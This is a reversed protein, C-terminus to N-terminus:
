HLTSDQVTVLSWFYESPTISLLSELRARRELFSPIITERCYCAFLDQTIWGSDQGALIYNIFNASNSGRIEQPAFKNPYILHHKTHTADAFITVGLTIHPLAKDTCKVTANSDRYSVVKVSSNLQPQIMTEDFNAFMSPFTSDNAVEEEWTTFWGEIISKRCGESREKELMRPKVMEFLSNRKIWEGAWCPSCRYLWRLLISEFKIGTSDAM